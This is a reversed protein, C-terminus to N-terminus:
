HAINLIDEPTEKVISYDYDGNYYLFTAYGDIYQERIMTTVLCLNVFIHDDNPQTLKIFKM